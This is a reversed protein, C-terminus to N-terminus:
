WRGQGTQAGSIRPDLEVLLQGQKVKQGDRVLLRRVIGPMPPQVLQVHGAPELSGEATAVIDVRGLVLWGILVLLGLGLVLATRRALPSVPREVLELAAPLFETQAVDHTRRAERHLAARLSAWTEGYASM